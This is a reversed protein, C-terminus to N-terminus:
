VLRVPLEDISTPLRRWGTAETEALFPEWTAAVHTAFARSRALLTRLEEFGWGKTKADRKLRSYSLHALDKNLRTRFCTELVDPCAAFDYDISLIDDKDRKGEFFDALTRAHVLIAELRPNSWLPNGPRGGGLLRVLEDIEYRVHELGRIREDRTPEYSM